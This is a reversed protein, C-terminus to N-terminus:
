WYTYNFIEQRQLKRDENRVNKEVLLGKKNYTYSIIEKSRGNVFRERQILRGKEDLTNKFAYDWTLNKKSTGMTIVKGDPTKIELPTANKDAIESGTFKRSINPFEYYSTQDRYILGDRYLTEREMLPDYSYFTESYTNGECLRKKETVRGLGDYAFVSTIVKSKEGWYATETEGTLKGLSDYTYVVQMQIKGEVFNDTLTFGVRRGARDYSVILKSTSNSESHVTTRTKVRNASYLSDPQLTEKEQCLGCLTLLCGLAFLVHKM